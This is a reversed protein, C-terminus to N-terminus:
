GPGVADKGVEFGPRQADIMAQAALVELGVEVFENEAEIAAMVPMGTKASQEADGGAM